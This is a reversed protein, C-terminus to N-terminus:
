AAKGGSNKAAVQLKVESVLDVGDVTEAIGANLLRSQLEPDVIVRYATKISEGSDVQAEHYEFWYKDGYPVQVRAPAAAAIQGEANFLLAMLM